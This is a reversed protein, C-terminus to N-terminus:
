LSQVSKPCRVMWVLNKLRLRNRYTLLRYCNLFKQRRLETPLAVSEYLTPRPNSERRRSKESKLPLQPLGAPRSLCSRGQPPASPRGSLLPPLCLRGALSQLACVGKTPKKDKRIRAECALRPSSQSSGTLRSGNM